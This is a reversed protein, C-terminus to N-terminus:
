CFPSQLLAPWYVKIILKSPRLQMACFVMGGKFDLGWSGILWQALV